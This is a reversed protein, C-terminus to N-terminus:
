AEGGGQEVPFKDILGIAKQVILAADYASVRGDGSVDARMIQDPTFMIVGIAFQVTLAADYASVRGDGSVDGYLFDASRVTIVIDEFDNATSDSVQFHVGPYAGIQTANPTWSFTKTAANFFSGSPLNTSAYTLTDNDSDIASLTFGLFAGATVAKNGIWALVPPANQIIVSDSGSPGDVKGDSPTVISEWREGKHATLAPLTQRDLGDQLLGNKAWAYRYIVIDGDPDISGSASAFLQNAATANHPIITVAPKTPPLNIGSGSPIYSYVGDKNADPIALPVDTAGFERYVDNKNQKYKITFSDIRGTNNGTDDSVFIHWRNETTPPLYAAADTIDIAVNNNNDIEPSTWNAAQRVGARCSLDRRQPHSITVRAIGKAWYDTRDKMFYSGSRDVENYSIWFYGDGSWGSGWSNVLKFAGYSTQSDINTYSRSDNFGVVTLAHLGVYSSNGRPGDYVDNGGTASLYDQYVVVSTVFVDGETLHQRLQTTNKYTYTYNEARFPMAMEYQTANPFITTNYTYPMVSGPACGQRTLIDFNEDFTSGRDQGDSIQNYLFSPSCRQEPLTLNWNHERGEHFSKYYYGTAWSVCSGIPGQSNVPPMYSALDVSAMGAIADIIISLQETDLGDSVKFVLDYKRNTQDARPTWTFLRTGSDIVAGEPLVPDNYYIAQGEKDQAKVYFRIAKNEAIVLEAGTYLKSLMGTFYPPGNVITAQAEGSPGNQTGDNPTVVCRWVQGMNIRSSPVLWATLDAQLFGDKYWAYSYTIPNREPDTSCCVGAWIDGTSKPSVPYVHVEPKTPPLNIQGYASIASLACFFTVGLYLLVNKM